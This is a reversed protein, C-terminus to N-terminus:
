SGHADARGVGPARGVGWDRSLYGSGGVSELQDGLSLEHAVTVQNIAEGREFLSLCADFCHRNREGYFDSSSLFSTVGTLSDGDILISGVVSEEANLDHPPLREAYM